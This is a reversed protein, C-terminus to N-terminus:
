DVIEVVVDKELVDFKINIWPRDQFDKKIRIPKIQKNLLKNVRNVPDPHTNKMYANKFFTKDFNIKRKMYNYAYKDCFYEEKHKEEILRLSHYLNVHKYFLKKTDFFYFNFFIFNLKLTLNWYTNDFLFM